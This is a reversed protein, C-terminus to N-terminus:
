LYVDNIIEKRRCNTSAHGCFFLCFIFDGGEAGWISITSATSIIECIMFKYKYFYFNLLANVELIM